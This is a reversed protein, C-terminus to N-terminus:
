YFMEVFLYFRMDEDLKCRMILSMLAKSCGERMNKMFPHMFASALAFQKLVDMPAWMKKNTNFSNVYDDFLSRMSKTTEIYFSRVGM